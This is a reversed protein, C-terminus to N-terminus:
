TRLFHISRYRQSCYLLARGPPVEISSVVGNSVVSSVPPLTERKQSVQLALFVGKEIGHEAVSLDYIRCQDM